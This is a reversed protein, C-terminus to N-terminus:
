VLEAGRAPAEGWSEDSAQIFTFILLFYPIQHWKFLHPSLKKVYINTTTLPSRSIKLKKGLKRQYLGWHSLRCLTYHDLSHTINAWVLTTLLRMTQMVIVRTLYKHRSVKQIQLHLVKMILKLMIIKQIFFHVAIKRQLM